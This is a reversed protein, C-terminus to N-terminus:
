RRRSSAFAGGACYKAAFKDIVASKCSAWEYQRALLANRRWKIISGGVSDYAAKAAVAMIRGSFYLLRRDPNSDRYARGVRSQQALSSARRRIRSAHCLKANVFRCSSM